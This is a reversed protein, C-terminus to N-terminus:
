KTSNTAQKKIRVDVVKIGQGEPYVIAPNLDMEAIEPLDMAIQSVSILLKEIAALDVAPLNRSGKLLPFSRIVRVMRAADGESLPAMRFSVDKMAEVQVGGMGFMLVPGVGKERKMGIIIEAGKPCQEQVVLKAGPFRGSMEEVAKQLAAKRAIDMKVGGTDSKHVVDASDVKLVVPFKIKSPLEAAAIQSTRAIPIKYAALIDFADTQSIFGAPAKSLIEQAGAKDGAAGAPAEDLRKRIESYRAMAALVRAGTEPFDFVPIGASKITEVTSAWNENTMVVVIIPKTVTKAVEAIKRGIAECDVFFPTVMPILISDVGPDENLCTIALGFHDANATAAVDVPNEVYSEPILGARLKAKTEESFKALSLGHGVCEDVCMIGPGGANAIIGVNPGAPVPQTAFAYAASIMEETTGFRMVGAHEFISDTLSDQQMMSGTHSSVAKAAAATRGTRIALISKDRAIRRCREIFGPTDKMSEIHMIITRTEPDNGFYDLIENTNVDTANGHSAYMRFGSGMKRLNLNLLEAVGGSQALISARGPRMPTFTFNAYVSVDPDSNMVGQSNPGYVRVGYRRAADMLADQLKAGDPGMESFGATHIIVFKVGMKGCDEVVQPVMTSKVVISAIDVPGPVDLISPYAKLGLIESEKPHVPYIGGKFNHTILNKVVRNGISFTNNSAGIVAVGRPRFLSDLM